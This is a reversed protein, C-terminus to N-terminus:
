NSRRFEVYKRIFVLLDAISLEASGLHVSLPKRTRLRRVPAAACPWAPRLSGLANGPLFDFVALAVSSLKKESQNM